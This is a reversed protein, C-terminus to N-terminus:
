NSFIVEFVLGKPADKSRVSDTRVTMHSGFTSSTFNMFSNDTAHDDPMENLKIKFNTNSKVLLSLLRFNNGCDILDKSFAEVGEPTVGPLSIGPKIVFTNM